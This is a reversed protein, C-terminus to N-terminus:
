RISVVLKLFYHYKELLLLRQFRGSIFFPEQYFDNSISVTIEVSYEKFHIWLSTVVADKDSTAVNECTTTAETVEFYFSFRFLAICEVTM